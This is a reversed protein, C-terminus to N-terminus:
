DGPQESMMGPMMNQDLHYMVWVTGVVAIVLVIFTFALAVLTWGAETKPSMHLFYVMHVIIQAIACALVLFATMRASPFVGAMVVIFPVGTLIVSLVFGTVYDKRTGHAFQPEHGADHGGALAEPNAM